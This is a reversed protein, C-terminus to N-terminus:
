SKFGLYQIEEVLQVRYRDRVQQKILSALMVVQEATGRGLNVFFNAHQPSIQIDGIRKGTLGCGAILSWAPIKGDSILGSFEQRLAEEGQGLVHNKFICGASPLSLPQHARKYATNQAIARRAAEVDGRELRLRVTLIIADTHKVRSDRYDFRMQENSWAEVTNQATLVECAVVMDRMEKGFSGANGRVAGGLTGYIGVIFEIGTLGAQLCKSAVLGTNMGAGVVVETGEINWEENRLQVVVGRVGRDACVVNAGGGLVVFPMAEARLQQITRVIQNKTRGVVFLDAPGGIRFNTHKAMPESQSIQSGVTALHRRVRFLVKPFALEAVAEALRASADPRSLNRIQASLRERQKADNALSKLEAGLREHTLGRESLVIAAGNEKFLEANAEQHSEPLPIIIAPKGLAAIESLTSLGARCVVVDAVAYADAMAETLFEVAHYNPHKLQFADQRGGTIHVIQCTDLLHLGTEAVLQNLHLAGTGGGFALIVPLDDRLEFRERGRQPQGAFLEPRVPNGIWTTKGKPFDGLSKEFAVTITSACIATSRNALGPIIDQQHIHVPIRRLWASWIVPVAVYSGASVVVDPHFAQIIRGAQFIGALLRFIDLLNQASPYRRVKGSSVTTFRLGASEVLVREPGKASGVFLFQTLPYDTIITSAVALLPTVSGGTGGGVLLIRM